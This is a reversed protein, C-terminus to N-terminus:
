RAPAFAPTAVALPEGLPDAGLGRCARERLEDRLDRAVALLEPRDDFPEANGPVRDLLGHAPDRALRRSQDDGLHHRAALM